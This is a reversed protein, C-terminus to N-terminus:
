EKTSLIFVMKIEVLSRLIVLILTAKPFEKLTQINQIIQAKVSMKFVFQISSKLFFLNTLIHHFFTKYGKQFLNTLFM